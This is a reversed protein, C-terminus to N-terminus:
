ALFRRLHSFRVSLYTSALWIYV